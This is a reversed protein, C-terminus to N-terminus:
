EEKLIQVPGMGPCPWLPRGTYTVRQAFSVTQGTQQYAATHRFYTPTDGAQYPGVEPELPLAIPEMYGAEDLAAEIAGAEVQAPDFSVEVVRFASSAYVDAVGPMTLLIRRVDVVHHDGYMSPLDLTLTEM